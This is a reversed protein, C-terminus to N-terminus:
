RLLPPHFLEQVQSAGRGRLWLGLGVAAVIVLEVTGVWSAAVYIQSLDTSISHATMSHGGFPLHVSGGIVCAILRHM